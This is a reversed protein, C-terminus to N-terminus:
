FCSMHPNYTLKSYTIKRKLNKKFQTNSKLRVLKPILFDILAFSAIYSIRSFLFFPLFLYRSIPLHSADFLQPPTLFPPGPLLTLSLRFVFRSLYFLFSLLSSQSPFSSFISVASLLFSPILFHLFRFFSFSHFLDFFFLFPFLFLAFRQGREQKEERKRFSNEYEDDERTRPLKGGIISMSELTNDAM